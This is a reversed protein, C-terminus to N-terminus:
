DGCTEALQEYSADQHDPLWDLTKLIADRSRCASFLYAVQSPTIGLLRQAYDMVPIHRGQGTLYTICTSDCYLILNDDQSSLLITWGAVCAPTGCMEGSHVKQRLIGLPQGSFVPSFWWSQHHWNPHMIIMERVEAMLETNM